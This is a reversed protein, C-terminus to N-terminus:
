ETLKYITLIWNHAKQWVILDEFKKAPARLM